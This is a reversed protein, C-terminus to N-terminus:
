GRLRLRLKPKNSNSNVPENYNNSNNNFGVFLLEQEAPPLSNLDFNPPFSIQSPFPIQPPQSPPMQSNFNNPPIQPTMTITLLTKATPIRVVTRFGSSDMPSHTDPPHTTQIYLSCIKKKKIIFKFEFIKFVIKKSM